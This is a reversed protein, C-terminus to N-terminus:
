SQSPLSACIAFGTIVAIAGFGFSLSTAVHRAFGSTAASSACVRPMFTTSSETSANRKSGSAGSAGSRASKGRMAFSSSSETHNVRAIAGADPVSTDSDVIRM